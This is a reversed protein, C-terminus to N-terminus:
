RDFAKAVIGKFIRKKTEQKGMIRVAFNDAYAEQPMERYAQAQMDDLEEVTEIDFHSKIGEWHEVVFQRGPESRLWKPTANAIPLKMFSDEVLRAYENPNDNYKEYLAAHGLEHLFAFRILKEQTLEETPIGLKEAILVMSENHGDLYTQATEFASEGIQIHVEHLGGPREYGNQAFAIKPNETPDIPILRVNELSPVAKVAAEYAPLLSRGVESSGLLQHNVEGVPPEFEAIPKSISESKMQLTESM